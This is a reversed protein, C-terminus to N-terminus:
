SRRALPCAARVDPRSRIIRESAPYTYDQNNNNKKEEHNRSGM